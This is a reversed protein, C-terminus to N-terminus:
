PEVPSPREPPKIWFWVLGGVGSIACAIAIAGGWGTHQAMAPTLVPSILGGINGGTNMFAGAFGRARGGIDTATTWFVGECLGLAGMSFALAVAVSSWDSLQVALLGFGAGFGMGTMVISRRGWKLGLRSCVFDTSWGGLAMGAGQALTIFFAARRADVDPVHLVKEFYYNMWYFFLYQFYGFAAYSLTLLWLDRRRILIREALGARPADLEDADSAPPRAPAPLHRVCTVCWILGVLGLAAGGVLFAAPWGVHDILWGFVPYCCAIGVLAGATVMGNATARGRSGIVDSVVHAAGPHLPANCLGAVCRISLLGIWLSQSELPLWGLVGTVASASGMALGLVVLARGAGLRDILWGAPMMALTYVILFATYVWGMNVESIGRHPIFVESGAVSIGVRNFHALAAILMLMAVIGWRQRTSMPESRDATM